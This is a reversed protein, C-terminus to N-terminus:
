EISKAVETKWSLLEQAEGIIGSSTLYRLGNKLASDKLTEWIRPWHQHKEDETWGLWKRFPELWPVLTVMTSGVKQEWHGMKSTQKPDNDQHFFWSRVM